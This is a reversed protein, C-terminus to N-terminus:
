WLACITVFICKTKLALLYLPTTVLCKNINFPTNHDEIFLAINEMVVLMLMRTSATNTVTRVKRTKTMAVSYVIWELFSLVLDKWKHGTKKLRELM